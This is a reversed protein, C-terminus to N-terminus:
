KIKKAAILIRGNKYSYECTMLTLLEDGYVCSNDINYLKNTDIFNMYQKFQEENNFLIFSSLNDLEEATIKFVAIIEYDGLEYLSDFQIIPHEIYYSKNQYNNLAAFMSGDRMHHGYLIYNMGADIVCASDMYISGYSSKNKNFNRKLYYEPDEKSQLVPYDIRTGPISIWGIYDNNEAKLYQYSLYIKTRDQDNELKEISIKDIGTEASKITDDIAAQNIILQIESSQVSQQKKEHVINILQFTCFIFLLFFTLFLLKSLIKKQM